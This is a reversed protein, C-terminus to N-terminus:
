TRQKFAHYTFKALAFIVVGDESTLLAILKDHASLSVFGSINSRAVNYLDTRLLAHRKCTTVFHQEDEVLQENCQKCMRLEAPTKPATYRGREIELHHSSTRLRSLSVRYKPIQLSLYTEHGFNFKFLCYTRLKPCRQTDNIMTFLKEEMVNHVHNKIHRYQTMPISDNEILDELGYKVLVKKLNTFWTVFGMNDLSQLLVFMKRAIHGSPMNLLRLWYKIVRLDIWLQEKV